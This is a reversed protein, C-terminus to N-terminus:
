TVYVIGADTGAPIYEELRLGLNRSRQPWFLSHYAGMESGDEAGSAIESACRLDLQAYAPTGFRESRFRPTVRVPDGSTEPECHFRAPTRSAPHVWSFRLCGVQRRVVEIPGTVISDEVLDVAHARVRGFVTTHRLSVVLDAYDDSEGCVAFSGRDCADLVSDSVFVHSPETHRPDGLSRITGVISREIQLCAPTRDLEISPEDPHQCACDSDLSWGPVLTCDRLSVTAVPGQVRLSRGTVMLGDLTVSPRPEGDVDPAGIISFRDPRNAYWDLLRVVPRSGAAARLTLRDGPEVDVRLQETFAGSGVLEITAERTPPSGASRTKDSQWRALAATITEDPQGPGCRYIRGTSVGRPYEGGGIDAPFAYRYSAWVGEDPADRPPFAFRGLVPDVAVTGRAPTYGWGSLDAAVIRSAPVPEDQHEGTFLCLSKGPGYYDLLASEFALRRIFAPVNTEDAVHTPSPERVPAVALQTDNGLISFTFRSRDRDECYAPARTISYSGLRWGFLAVEEIGSRGSTHFSDIRRVDVLHALEDFPGDVRDLADVGRVDVLRGRRLRSRLEVPETGFLRVPQDFALLQRLEVARTPLGAVDAALDELIALTGKRRRNAVTDAVDRRPAIARLVAGADDQGSGLAEEYGHLVRYGVLEGLYPALWEQCTEIFWDDYLQDVSDSLLDRQEELVALLARLVHGADQDRQQHLRPLLEFLSTV